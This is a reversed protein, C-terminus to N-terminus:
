FVSPRARLMATLMGEITQRARDNARQVWALDDEAAPPADSLDIAPGFRIQWKAPLPPPTLPLYPLGFAGPLKLLLPMSEEAGVIAVPIIPVGLRV